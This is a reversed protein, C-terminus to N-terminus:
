LQAFLVNQALTHACFDRNGSTSVPMKFPSGGAAIGWNDGVEQVKKSWSLLNLNKNFGLFQVRM